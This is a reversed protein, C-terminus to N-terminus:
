QNIHLFNLIEVHKGTLRSRLKSVTLGASSFCRESPASTAPIILYKATLQSLQSNLQNAQWWTLPDAQSCKQRLYWNIGETISVDEEGSDSSNDTKGLSLIDELSLVGATHTLAPAQIALQASAVPRNFYKTKYAPHLFTAKRYMNKVTISSSSEDSLVTSFRRLISESMDRKFNVIFSDEEPLTTNYKEYLGKIVPIVSSISVYQDGELFATAAKLPELLEVLHQILIWNSERLELHSAKNRPTVTEDRLVIRLILQYKVLRLLMEYSSNWRTLCDMVLEVGLPDNETRTQAYKLKLANMAKPSQRFYQVLHRAAGLARKINEQKICDHICLQLTHAACRFHVWGHKETLIRMSSVMNSGNDTVCAVIQQPSVSFDEMVSEVWRAINEGTHAEGVEKTAIACSRLTPKCGCVEMYHGTIGLYSELKCSSWLDMTLAIYNASSFKTKLKAKALSYMSEINRTFTQRSPLDYAPELFKMLNKFHRGDVLNIPRLDGTIVNCILRTVQESRNKTMRAKAYETICM